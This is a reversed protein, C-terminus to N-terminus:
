PGGDRKKESQAWPPIDDTLPAACGAGNPDQACSPTPTHAYCGGLCCALFGLCFAAFLLGKEASTLM